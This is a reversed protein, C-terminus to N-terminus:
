ELFRTDRLDLDLFAFFRHTDAAHGSAAVHGVHLRGHHLRRRNGSQSGGDGRRRRSRAREGRWHVHRAAGMTPVKRDDADGAGLREHLDAGLDLFALNWADDFRHLHVLDLSLAPLTM